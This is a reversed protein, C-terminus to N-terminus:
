DIFPFDKLVAITHPNTTNTANILKGLDLTIWRVSRNSVLGAV